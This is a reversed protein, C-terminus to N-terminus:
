SNEGTSEVEIFVGPPRSEMLVVVWGKNDTAGGVVLGNGRGHARVATLFDERKAAAVHIKTSAAILIAQGESVGACRDDPVGQAKAVSVSLLAFAIVLLSRAWVM